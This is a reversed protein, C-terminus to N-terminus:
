TYSPLYNVLVDDAYADVVFRIDVAVPVEDLRRLATRRLEEVMEEVEGTSVDGRRVFHGLNGSTQGLKLCDVLDDAIMVLTGLCQCVERAPAVAERLGAALCAMEAYAAMPLGSKVRACALWDDRTDPPAHVEELQVRWFTRFDEEAAALVEAPNAYQGFRSTAAQVLFVGMGLDWRPYPQDLDLLDDILKIGVCHVGAHIGLERRLAGDAVWSAALHPFMPIGRFRGVYELCEKGMGLGELIRLCEASVERGVAEWETKFGKEDGKM